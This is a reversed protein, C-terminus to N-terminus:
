DSLSLKEGEIKRKEVLVEEILNRLKANEGKLTQSSDLLSKKLDEITKHSRKENNMLTEVIRTTDATAELKNDLTCM